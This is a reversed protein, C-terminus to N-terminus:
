NTEVQDLFDNGIDFLFGALGIFYAGKKDGRVARQEVLFNKIVQAALLKRQADAQVAGFFDMVALPEVVFPAATKLLYVAFQLRGNLLQAM